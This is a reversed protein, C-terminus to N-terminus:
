RARTRTVVIHQRSLTSNAADRHFREHWYQKVTYSPLKIPAALIRVNGEAAM